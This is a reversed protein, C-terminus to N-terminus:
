VHYKYQGCEIRLLYKLKGWQQEEMDYGPSPTATSAEQHSDTHDSSLDFLGQYASDATTAGTVGNDQRRLIHYKM